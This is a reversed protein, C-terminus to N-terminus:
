GTFSLTFCCCHITYPNDNMNVISPDKCCIACAHCAKSGRAAMNSSKKELQLSSRMKLEIIFNSTGTLETSPLASLLMNIWGRDLVYVKFSAFLMSKRCTIFGASM